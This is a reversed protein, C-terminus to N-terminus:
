KTNVKSPYRKVITCQIYLSHRRICVSDAWAPPAKCVIRQQYLHFASSSTTTNMPREQEVKRNCTPAEYNNPSQMWVQEGSGKHDSQSGRRDSGEAAGHRGGISAEKMGLAFSTFGDSASGRVSSTRGFLM